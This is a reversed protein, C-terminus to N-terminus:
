PKCQLQVSWRCLRHLHLMFPFLLFLYVFVADNLKLKLSPHLASADCVSGLM